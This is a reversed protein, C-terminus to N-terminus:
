DTGNEILSNIMKDYKKRIEDWKQIQVSDQKNLYEKNPLYNLKNVLISAKDYDGSDILKLLEKEDAELKLLTIETQLEENKRNDNSRNDDEIIFPILLLPFIVSFVILGLCGFKAGKLFTTTSKKRKGEETEFNKNKEFEFSLNEYISLLEISSLSRVKLLTLYERANGEIQGRKLITIDKGTIRNPNSGQITVNEEKLYGIWKATSRILEENSLSSIDVNPLPTKCFLCNTFLLDNDAGCNNCKKTSNM